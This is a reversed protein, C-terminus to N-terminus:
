FSRKEYPVTFDVSLTGIIRTSHHPRKALFVADADSAAAMPRYATCCSTLFAIPRMRLILCRARPPIVLPIDFCTDADSAMLSGRSRGVLSARLALCVVSGPLSWGLFTTSHTQNASSVEEM